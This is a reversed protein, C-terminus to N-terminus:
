YSLQADSPHYDGSGKIDFTIKLDEHANLSEIIWKLTDTGEEDIIETPKRSFNGYSFHDPVKDQVVLNRLAMDGVDEISLIIQYNGDEKGIPVIEKGVRYKRRIHVVKIVPIEEATPIFEIEAGRPYTNATYIANTVFQVDKPPRDVHIPYVLKISSNPEFMGTSSEKLNNLVLKVSKNDIRIAEPDLAIAKGDWFLKVERPSPPKFEDNFDRQFITVENLPASGNNKMTLEAQIESKKYSPILVMNEEEIISPIKEAKYTISGTISALVLNIDDISIISNVSTQFTPMVRFELKKKFIPYGESEYNWHESHWEAGSPVKILTEEPLSLLNQELIKPDSVNVELLEIIFESPNQFVFNCEWMGPEEDKEVMDIYYKNRTFGKFKDISLGGSFSSQAQYTIDILGTKVPDLTKVLVECTCKLFVTIEPDLENITWIIKGGDIKANGLSTSRIIINRFESPIKKEIKVNTIAKEYVSHLAIVLTIENSKNISIGYSELNFGKTDVGGELMEEEAEKIRELIEAKTADDPVDILNDECYQKLDELSWQEIDLKEEDVEIFEIDKDLDEIEIDNEGRIAGISDDSIGLGESVFEEDEVNEDYENEIEDNFEVKEKKEEPFPEQEEIIEVKVDSTKQKLQLLDEEIDNPNLIDDANPNTNIYEKVLLLNKIEGKLQFEQIHRKDDENIGLEQINIEDSELNTSETNAFIVNIDWVRDVTSPNEISLKGNFGINKINAHHDQNVKVDEVLKVLVSLGEKNGDKLIIGQPQKKLTSVEDKPELDKKIEEKKKRAM